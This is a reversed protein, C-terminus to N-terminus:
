KCFVHGGIVRDVDGTLATTAFYITSTSVANEYGALVAEISNYEKETPCAEMIHPYTEFQCRQSIVGELSNPYRDSTMRNFIVEVVARQGEECEGRAELWVIRALLDKEYDSLTIGWRNQPVNIQAEVITERTKLTLSEKSDPEGEAIEEQTEATTVMNKSVMAIDAEIPITIMEAIASTVGATVKNGAGMASNQAANVPVARCSLIGALALLCFINQKKFSM